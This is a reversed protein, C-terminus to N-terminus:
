QRAVDLLITTFANHKEPNQLDHQTLNFVCGCYELPEIEKRVIHMITEWEVLKNKRM